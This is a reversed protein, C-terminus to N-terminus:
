ARIWPIWFGFTSGVGLKSVVSVDGRHAKVIEKVNWLGLGTSNEGNTPTTSTKGFETFLIGFESESVGQGQDAVSFHLRRLDSEIWARIVITTQPHSYKIANSILNSLVDKIRHADFRALDPLAPDKQHIVKIHKKGALVEADTKVEDLFSALRQESIELIPAGSSGENMLKLDGVLKKMSECSRMLTNISKKSKEDLTPFWVSRNILSLTIQLVSLPNNLDHITTRFIKEKIKIEGLTEQMLMHEVVLSIIGSIERYLKIHANQYTHTHKSSFFIFGIPEGEIVIPCTLSSRIGDRLVMQTSLSESRDRGYAKLDNIVRTSQTELIKKLSPSLEGVFKKDLNTVPMKAKVWQVHLLGNQLLAVGIRDFLILKDLKTFVSELIDEGSVGLNLELHVAKFLRSLEIKERVSKPFLNISIKDDREDESGM